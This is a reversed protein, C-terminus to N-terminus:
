GCSSAESSGEARLLDVYAGQVLDEPSVGLRAMLTHAEQVGLEEPEGEQLVVELELWAGLGQVEDLHVRTRGVLYLTRLKQVRGVQGWALTLSERLTDPEPTTSLLYFSTKPGTHDPRQYFILEGHGDEFTRLKLRGQQTHFFTDDQAIREPGHHALAAAKAEVAARDRLRAKIEINRAM